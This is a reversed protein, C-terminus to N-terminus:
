ETGPPPRLRLQGGSATAIAGRSLEDGHSTLVGHRASAQERARFGVLRVVGSHPQKRVVALEGFDKDLTVLVRGERHAFTLIEDDGPDESWEGCWIVDYGLSVLEAKAGGWVCTDLLVKV